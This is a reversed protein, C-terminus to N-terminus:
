DYLTSVKTFGNSRLYNYVVAAVEPASVASVVPAPQSAAPPAM